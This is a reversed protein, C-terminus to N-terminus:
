GESRGSARAGGASREVAGGRHLVGVPDAVPLARMNELSLLRRELRETFEGAGQPLEHLGDYFREDALWEQANTLSLAYERCIGSLVNDFETSFAQSYLARFQSAEPPIVLHV